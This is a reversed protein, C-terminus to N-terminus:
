ASLAQDVLLSFAVTRLSRVTARASQTAITQIAQPHSQTM